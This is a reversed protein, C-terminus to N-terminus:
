REHPSLSKITGSSWAKKSSDRSFHVTGQLSSFPKSSGLCEFSLALLWGSKLQHICGPVELSRAADPLHISTHPTPELQRQDASVLVGGGAHGLVSVCWGRRHSLHAQSALAPATQPPHCSSTPTPLHALGRHGQCGEGGGQPM